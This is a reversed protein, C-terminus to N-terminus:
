YSRNNVLSDAANLDTRRAYCVDNSEVTTTELTLSFKQLCSDTLIATLELWRQKSICYAGRPTWSAEFHLLPDNGRVLLGLNDYIDVPTGDKTHSEGDGCYDARAMRTCAQHYAALPVGNYSQWPRYGWRACKAL